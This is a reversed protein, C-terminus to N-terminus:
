IEDWNASVWWITKIIHTIETILIDLADTININLDCPRFYNKLVEWLDEDYILSDDAARTVTEYIDEDGEEEEINNIIKHVIIAMEHNYYNSIYADQRKTTEM